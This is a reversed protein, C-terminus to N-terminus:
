LVVEPNSVDIAVFIRTKPDTGLAVVCAGPLVMSEQVTQNNVCIEGSTREIEFDLGDYTITASSTAVKGFSVTKRSKDLIYTAGSYSLLARHKDKLLYRSIARCVTKMEPRDTPNDALTTNLLRALDSPLAVRLTEFGGSSLWSHPVPPRGTLSPPLDSESLYVATAGFAYVDVKPTFEVYGHHYLEPAAFGPTGRFGLTNASQVNCRALDFDFIKVINEKSLIMNNPKIDRHIIGQAHIDSIGLAIQYLYRLYTSLEPETKAVKSLERGEIYEQVIGIRNDPPLIVIDFIQVVNKSRIIQLAKIEDNIRKKDSGSQLFKIAVKRTLNLDDCIVVSGTGGELKNGTPRYRDNM